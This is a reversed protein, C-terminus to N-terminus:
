GRPRRLLPLARLWADREAGWLEGRFRYDNKRIIEELEAQLTALSAEAHQRLRTTTTPKTLAMVQELHPVCLPGGAELAQWTAESELGAALASVYRREADAADSCAPCPASPAPPRSGRLKGLLVGGGGLHRWRERTQDALDSYLIAVGLADGLSALLPTHEACFGQSRRLRERAKPDNVFETFFSRLSREVSRTVLRCLACATEPKTDASSESSPSVELTSLIEHLTAEPAPPSISM